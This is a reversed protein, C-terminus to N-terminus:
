FITRKKPGGQVCVCVCIYPKMKVGDVYLAVYNYSLMYLVCAYITVCVCNFGVEQISDDVSIYCFGKSDFQVKGSAISSIM